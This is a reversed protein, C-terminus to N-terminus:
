SHSQVPAPDDLVVRNRGDQKARYLARDARDFLRTSDEGSGLCAVGLSVTVSLDTDGHTCHLNYVAQRIREALLHAGDKSTNSLLIVFEEGGYRFLIDTSRVCRAACRAVDRLIGDGILHGFRDNIRKFHDIDLVLLALPTAHRQALNVERQLTGEFSSRNNIGTLPDTLARTVAGRYMLANRLPYLLSGITYEIQLTESEAFKQSRTFEVEGLEQGAVSLRYNCRHRAPAGFTIQLESDAHRYTVSAHRIQKQCEAAFLSILQDVELTTQFTTALELARTTRWNAHALDAQPSESQVQKFAM